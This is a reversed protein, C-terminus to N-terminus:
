AESTGEGHRRAWFLIMTVFVAVLLALAGVAVVADTSMFGATGM